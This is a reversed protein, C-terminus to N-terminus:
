VIPRPTRIFDGGTYVFGKIRAFRDRAASAEGMVNSFILKLVM